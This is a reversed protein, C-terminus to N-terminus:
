RQAFVLVGRMGGDPREHVAGGAFTISPARVSSVPEVARTWSPEPGVASVVEFRVSAYGVQQVYVDLSRLLAGDPARPEELSLVHAALADLAPDWTLASAGARQRAVDVSARLAELPDEPRREEPLRANTYLEENGGMARWSVRLDRPPRAFVEVVFAERRGGVERFAVGVGLATYRPELLQGRHGPSYEIAFHAALPGSAFALNEGVLEFSYGKRRLRTKVDEGRPSVHAVSAREALDLAYQQAAETLPGAPQLAGLGHAKRLQNIRAVLVDRAEGPSSPERPRRARQAGFQGAGADVFFLAVVEPGGAGRAVVEVTHRGIRPFAISACFRAGSQEVREVAEVAGAPTTVFLRVDAYGEEVSGCLRHPATASPTVRRPFGELRARRQASLLVYAASDGHLAVGVGLFAGAQLDFRARQLLARRAEDTPTGRVVLPSATADYGGADSISEAIALLDLPASPEALAQRALSRAAKALAPDGRVPADSRSLVHLTAELELAEPTEPLQALLVGLPIGLWLLGVTLMDRPYCLAPKSVVPSRDGRARGGM